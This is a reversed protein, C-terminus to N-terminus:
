TIKPQFILIKKASHKIKKWLSRSTKMRGLNQKGCRCVEFPQARSASCRCLDPPGLMPREACTQNWEACTQRANSKACTQNPARKIRHVNSVRKIRRVNSGHRCACSGRQPVGGKRACSRGRSPGTLSFRDGHLLHKRRCVGQDMGTRGVGVGDQAGQHVSARDLLSLLSRDLALGLTRRGVM